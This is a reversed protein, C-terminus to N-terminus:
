WAKKPSWSDTFGMKLWTSPSATGWTRDGTVEHTWRVDIQAKEWPPMMWGACRSNPFHKGGLSSTGLTCSARIWVLYYDQWVGEVNIGSIFVHLRARCCWPSHAPFHFFSPGWLCSGSPNVHIATTDRPAGLPFSCYDARQCVRARRGVSGWEQM